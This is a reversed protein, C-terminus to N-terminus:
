ERRLVQIPDVRTALLAPGWSAFTAVGLVIVVVGILTTPDHVPVGYLVQRLLGSLLLLAALGAAVGQGTVMLGERLVMNRVAGPWAGVALRIGLEQRRARVGQALVGFLGVATLGLAVAAFAGLLLMAFRRPAMTSRLLVGLDIAGDLSAGPVLERLAALADPITTTGIATHRTVLYVSGTPAQAHPLYVAPEAPEAPSTYRADGVVGVIRRSVPPGGYSVFLMEGVPDSGAFLMEAAAQSLVVVMESDGRDGPEFGRGRVVSMGTVAFLRPTGVVARTALDQELGPRSVRAQENGIGPALPLSSILAADAVGPRASLSTVAHEAFAVRAAPTPFYQWLHSEIAVLGEARYGQDEKQLALWSRVLLGGAGLLLSALAVQTAVLGLRLQRGFRGGGHGAGHTLAAHLGTRAVLRAPLVAMVLALVLVAVAVIGMLRWDVTLEALRPLEAPAWRRFARLGLVGVGFGALGAALALAVAETALQRLIRGRGAGVSARVTLEHRRDLTDAVMLGAANAAAMLLLLVAGLALLGLGTRVSGFLADTLPVVHLDRVTQPGVIRADSRRALEQLDGTGATLSIGPRLRGFASFYDSRRSERAEGAIVMPTFLSRGQVVPFDPRLVGVVLYPSGDLSITRGVAASDGGLRALFFAHSVVVVPQGGGAFDQIGFLRGLLPAVRFVDFFGPTVRWAGFATPVGDVPMDYGYPEAAAIAAFTQTEEALDAVTGPALGTRVDPNSAPARWLTVVDDPEALPLPRLLVADAAGLFTTVAGTGLALTAVILAFLMPRHRVRRVSFGLDHRFDALWDMRRTERASRHDMAFLAQRLTPLPGLRAEARARAEEASLGAREYAEASAALHFALEDDIDERLQRPTAFPLRFRSM